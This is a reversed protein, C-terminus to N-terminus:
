WLPLSDGLEANRDESCLGNRKCADVRLGKDQGWTVQPPPVDSALTQSARAAAKATLLSDKAESGPTKHTKDADM